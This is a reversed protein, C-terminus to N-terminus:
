GLPGSGRQPAKSGDHVLFITLFISGMRSYISIKNNRITLDKKNRLFINMSRDTKTSGSLESGIKPQMKSCGPSLFFNYFYCLQSKIDKFSSLKLWIKNAKLVMRRQFSTKQLAPVNSLTRSYTSAYQLSRLVLCNQDYKQKSKKSSEKFIQKTKVKSPSLIKEFQNKCSFRESWKDQILSQRYHVLDM